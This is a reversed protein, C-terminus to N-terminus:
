VVEWENDQDLELTVKWLASSYLFQVKCGQHLLVPATPVGIDYKSVGITADPHCVNEPNVAIAEPFNECQVSYYPTQLTPVDQILRQSYIWGCDCLCGSWDPIARSRYQKQFVIINGLGWQLDCGSVWTCKIADWGTWLWILYCHVKPETELFFDM